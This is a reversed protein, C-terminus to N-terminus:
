YVSIRDLASHDQGTYWLGSWHVFIRTLASHDKDTSYDQGTCQPGSWHVVMQNTCLPAMWYMAAKALACLSGTWHVLQLGSMCVATGAVIGHDKVTLITLPMTIRGLAGIHQWATIHIQM